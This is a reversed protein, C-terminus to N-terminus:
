GPPASGRTPRGLRVLLSLWRAGGDDAFMDDGAPASGANARALVLVLNLGLGLQTGVLQPDWERTEMEESLWLLFDMPNLMSTIREWLPKRRVLRPM